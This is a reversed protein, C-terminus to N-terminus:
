HAADLLMDRFRMIELTQAADVPCVGEAFFHLAAKMLGGFYDSKIAAYGGGASDEVALTYPMKEAFVVTAHKGGATEGCCLLQKGQRTVSVRAIPDALLLVAMELPHVLYEEPSRGGATLIVNQVDTFKKLEEAFRLASSSFFPTGYQEALAVIQKATALNEAFTKDIFTPKGFPLVAKAYALHKDPDAPALIMIADCATCLAEISKAREAHNKACWEDTTVGDRPSDEREAWAMTVAAEIGIEEGAKILWAPYNNAHWESMYYDVIGIKLM